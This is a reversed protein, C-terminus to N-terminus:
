GDTPEALFHRAIRCFREPEDLYAFHGAGEFVVLGADAILHEMRQGHALPAADDASGWLLLTSSGVRPLLGEYDENVVKVLIPRLPGADQYDQSAIARYVRDRLARGPSGLKGAVRAGKSAARKARAKFSPPTRLGPSGMLMLRDVLTPVTAALYFSVKAGFSHGIFHARHIDLSALLDRVYTAYDPTGWVGAPVPSEGFGPLDLAVVRFDSRLCNVIPAMSEIRGGWGHLVVVPPGVGVDLVRTPQGGAELTKTEQM